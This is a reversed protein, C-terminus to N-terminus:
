AFTYGHRDLLKRLQHRARFARVKAKARSWGLHEAIESMPMQELYLLTLVARDEPELHSLLWQAEAVNGASNESGSEAAFDELKASAEHGEDKVLALPSRKRRRCYELGVNVAIRRLWHAFPKEARWQPLNRYARIFTEQVLDELDARWPCFRFLLGSISSQHRRALEDFAALDNEQVRRVLFLDSDQSSENPM